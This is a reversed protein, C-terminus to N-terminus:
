SAAGQLTHAAELRKCYADYGNDNAVNDSPKPGDKIVERFNDVVGEPAKLMDFSADIYADSKDKTFGDGNSADVAICKIEKDTKGTFDADKAFAKAKTVLVERASVMADLAEGTIVQKKLEVIEADKTALETDKAALATDHATTAASAASESAANASELADNAAQIQGQLKIIAKEAADTTEVTLGDVVISKTQMTTKEVNSKRDSSWSDGIRVASGARGKDVLAVHNMRLNRQIADYEKGDSTTGPTMEIDMLYGMSLQSKGSQVKKIAEGDMLILPVNVFEGSRLVKSGISGIALQKWNSANVLEEPHDDTAPKGAYTAMSAESFVEEEPRYVRIVDQTMLGLESGLYEQIGTRACNVDAALYGDSTIHVGSLKGDEILKLGNM